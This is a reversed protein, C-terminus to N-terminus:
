RGRRTSLSPSLFGSNREFILKVVGHIFHVSMADWRFLAVDVVVLRELHCNLLMAHVRPAAATQRVTLREAVVRMAIAVDLTHDLPTWDLIYGCLVLVHPKAIAFLRSMSWKAVSRMAPFLDLLGMQIAFNVDEIGLARSSTADLTM